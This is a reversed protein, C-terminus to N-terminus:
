KRIVICGAVGAGDAPDLVLDLSVGDSKSRASCPMLGRGTLAVLVPRDEGRREAINETAHAEADLRDVKNWVEILQEHDDPDVDLARLVEEVDHAQAATDGRRTACLPHDAEIVEELTARFAAVLM